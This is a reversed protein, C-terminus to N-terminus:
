GGPDVPEELKTLCTDICTDISTHKGREFEETFTTEGLATRARVTIREVDGREAPPLPTGVSERAATAAGLLLAAHHHHDALAQAGALGELALAVTRPDGTARAATLGELHLNRATTPDGRQEAAFGLEALTLATGPEYGTRLNWELASRLHAEAHDLRGQRRAGLGLGLSAFAAGPEYCHERALRWAQQHFEEATPYDAALSSLRGLRCLQTTIVPWLQLEQAMRLGDRHLRAAQQHDGAIEALVGLLDATRV